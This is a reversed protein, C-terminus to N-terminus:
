YLVRAFVTICNKKTGLLHFKKILQTGILKEFVIEM